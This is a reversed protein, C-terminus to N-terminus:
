ACACAQEREWFCISTVRSKGRILLEGKHLNSFPAHLVHLHLHWRFFALRSQSSHLHPGRHCMIRKLFALTIAAVLWCNYGFFSLYAFTNKGQIAAKGNQWKAYNRDSYSSDNIDKIDKKNRLELSKTFTDTRYINPWVNKHYSVYTLNYM